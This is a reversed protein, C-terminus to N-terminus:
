QVINDQSIIKPCYQVSLLGQATNNFFSQVVDCLYFGQAIKNKLSWIVKCFFLEQENNDQYEQSLMVCSFVGHLVARSIRSLKADSFTMHLTTQYEQSLRAYILVRHLTTRFAGSLMEYSFIRHLTIKISKPCCQTASFGICHQEVSELYSRKLFFRTCYQRSVRSVINCLDFGQHLTTRSAGSLVRHLATRFAGPLM